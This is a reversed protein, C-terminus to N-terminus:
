YSQPFLVEGIDDDIYFSCLPQSSVTNHLAFAWLYSRKEKVFAVGLSIDANKNSINPFSDKQYKEAISYAKDIKIKIEAPNIFGLPLGRAFSDFFSKPLEQKKKLTTTNALNVGYAKDPSSESSYILSYGEPDNELNGQDDFKAFLSFIVLRSNSNWGRAYKASSNIIEIMESDSPIGASTTRANKNKEAQPLVVESDAAPKDNTFEGYDSGLFRLLLAFILGTVSLIIRILRVAQPNEKFFIPTTVALFIVFLFLSLIIPNIGPFQLSVYLKAIILASSVSIILILVNGTKRFFDFM